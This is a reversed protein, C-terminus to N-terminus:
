IPHFKILSIAAIRKWYNKENFVLGSILGTQSHKHTFYKIENKM